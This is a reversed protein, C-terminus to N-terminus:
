RMTYGRGDLCAGLARYYESRNKRLQAESVNEPPKTPDFGNQGVSWRHCEYRDDAQQKEAQGQRPYVFIKEDATSTPTTAQTSVVVQEQVVVPPVSYYPPFYYPPPPYFPGYFPALVAAGGIVVSPGWYGWPGGGPGGGPGGPGRADSALPNVLFIVALFMLVICATRKM